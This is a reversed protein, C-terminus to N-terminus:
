GPKVVVRITEIIIKIDGFFSKNNVYDRYYGIKIPLIEEVYVAHPDASKALIDNEDRFKISAWDTIGPRVSFIIKRDDESYYSVYKPVEPRPGVFSMDGFVIDLLQALEDLKYRRLVTGVETVRTDKGVTIQPGRREADPVMTRFKHIRFLKGGRGVREQRFFVPGPSEFKIALAICLLLPALVMLGVASALLDFLRKAIM